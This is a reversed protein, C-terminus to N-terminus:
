NVEMISSDHLLSDSLGQELRLRKIIRDHPSTANLNRNYKYDKRVPTEGTSRYLYVEENRFQGINNTAQEIARLLDSEAEEVALHLDHQVVSRIETLKISSKSSETTINQDLRDHKENVNTCTADLHSKIETEFCDINELQIKLTEKRIKEDEQMINISSKIEKHLKNYEENMNSRERELHQISTQNENHSSQIFNTATSLGNGEIDEHLSSVKKSIIEDQDVSYNELELILKKIEQFKDNQHGTKQNISSKLSKLEDCYHNFKSQLYHAFNDSSKQQENLRGIIYESLKNEQSKRENLLEQIVNIHTNVSKFLVDDREKLANFYTAFSVRKNFFFFLIQFNYTLNKFISM